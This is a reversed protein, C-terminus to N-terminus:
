ILRQLTKQPSQLSRGVVETGGFFLFDDAQQDLLDDHFVVRDGHAMADRQRAAAAIIGARRSNRRWSPWRRRGCRSQAGLLLGISLIVLHTWPTRDGNSALRYRFLKSWPTFSWGSNSAFSM